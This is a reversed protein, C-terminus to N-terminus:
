LPADQLDSPVSREPVAWVRWLQGEEPLRSM